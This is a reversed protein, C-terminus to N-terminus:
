TETWTGRGSLGDQAMEDLLIPRWRGVRTHSNGTAARVSSQLSPPKFCYVNIREWNQTGSIQFGPTPLTM